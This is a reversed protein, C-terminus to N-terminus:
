VGLGEAWALAELHCKNVHEPDMMLSEAIERIKEVEAGECAEALRLFPGYIGGRTLLAETVESSLNLKELAQEMPMELIADLLSFVGVIFLNDREKKEFYGQGLLETLRGRTIATKMLAPAATREGATVMLLTLWRYLQDYGLITIAHRISQIESSLGFGVSNIYRLLKFSLAVDHKFSAEIDKIEAKRNVQNLIELVVAHAPHIIKASLTEPQAFYFGQFLKFGAQKCAEFTSKTEVKEAVPRLSKGKLKAFLALTKDLGLKMLDLKVYDAHPLLALLGPDDLGSLSIRFGAKRLAEVREVLAADAQFGPLLELVTRQAPLLELFDGRLVEANVNIFALKDGLLWQTGIDNLTNVLVRACARVDDEIVASNAEASHRFLLEYAVIQQQDDLIPQRGIFAQESM